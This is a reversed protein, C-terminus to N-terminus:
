IGAAVATRVRPDAAARRTGDRAIAVISVPGWGVATDPWRKVTHGRATLGAVVADPMTAEVSLESLPGGLAESHWRSATQAAEPTHGAHLLHAVAQVLYQPQQNGGRTGLLLACAGDRTWLTPSLTHLPRKGPALENPHGPTLTFGGGRNHLFVGTDGASLGSGIGWFNSQIASVAMGDGDVACFYATGGPADEAEPWSAVADPSLSAVREGLRDRDLLADPDLPAHAPDAVLRNREWAVARYAEIVAHHFGPSAPDPDPDLDELIMSAALTLYGQSNPPVTWGTLGFATCGIADVWDARNGALDTPTLRGAVAESVAQAVPGEYFAERGHTAIAALTDALDPRRLVAGAAAPRGDPYLHAAARQGGVLAAIRVLDDAFEPSVEFGDRGLAIAPALVDSLPRTGHRGALAEWGDVCGPVTVSEFARTPMSRHGDARLRGADVGSGARGSANLVDPRPAGPRHVIAFLDGGIGCTTPLVMGLVANAAIVADAANGGDAMVDVAAETALHHPTVAVAATGVFTSVPRAFATV